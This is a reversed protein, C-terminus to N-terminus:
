PHCKQFYQVFPQRLQGDVRTESLCVLVGSLRVDVKTALHGFRAWQVLRALRLPLLIRQM